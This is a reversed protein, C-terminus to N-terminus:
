KIEDKICRVSFGYGKAGILDDCDNTGWDLNIFYVRDNEKFKTTTWFMALSGMNNFDGSEDRFGGPLGCFDYVDTGNGQEAWGKKSKLKKGAPNNGGLFTILEFWDEKIPIHYGSPAIGRKDNIAYWNYLIGYKEGNVQSNDYYCWAATGNKMAKVWESNSKAEPISDGNNFKTVDLNKPMWIQKDIKIDGNPQKSDSSNKCGTSVFSLLISLALINFKM